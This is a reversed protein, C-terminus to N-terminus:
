DNKKSFGWILLLLAVGNFLIDWFLGMGLVVPLKFLFLAVFMAVWARFSIKQM